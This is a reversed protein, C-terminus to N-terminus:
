AQGDKAEQCEINILTQGFAENKWEVGKRVKTQQKYDQNIDYLLPPWSLSPPPIKTQQYLM